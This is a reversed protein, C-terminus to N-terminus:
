IFIICVSNETQSEPSKPMMNNKNASPHTQVHQPMRYQWWAFPQSCHGWPYARRKKVFGNCVIPVLNICWEREKWGADGGKENGSCRYSKLYNICFAHFVCYGLLHVDTKIHLIQNNSFVTVHSKYFLKSFM